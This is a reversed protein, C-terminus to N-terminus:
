GARKIAADWMQRISDVTFHDGYNKVRASVEPQFVFTCKQKETRGYERLHVDIIHEKSLRTLTMQSRLADIAPKILHIVRNTGAQTKPVTFRDKALNRRIMMTGNKLDIDEWGLACLEGPRVGTYVSVCWLNKAQQNRCA